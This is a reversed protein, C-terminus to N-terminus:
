IDKRIYYGLACCMGSLSNLLALDHRGMALSGFFMFVNALAFLGFINKLSIM